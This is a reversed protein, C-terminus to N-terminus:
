YVVYILFLPYVKDMVRVIIIKYYKVIFVNTWSTLSAISGVNM